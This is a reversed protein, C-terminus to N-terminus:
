IISLVIDYGDSLISYDVEDDYYERLFECMGIAIEEIESHTEENYTFNGSGIIVGIKYCDLTDFQLDYKCALREINRMYEIEWEKDKTFQDKETM